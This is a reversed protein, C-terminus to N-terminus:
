GAPDTKSAISESRTAALRAYASLSCPLIERHLPESCHRVWCDERLLFRAAVRPGRWGRCELTITAGESLKMVDGRAPHDPVAQPDAGM